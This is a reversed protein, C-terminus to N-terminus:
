KRINYTLDNEGLKIEIRLPSKTDEVVSNPLTCGFAYTGTYMMDINEVNEPDLVVVNPCFTDANLRSVDRGESGVNIYDYNVQRIWGAFEYDDQYVVKVAADEMFNVGKKQLNTLDLLLWAFEANVGSDQWGADWWRFNYYWDKNLKDIFVHDSSADKRGSINDFNADKKFQAFFDAFMFVVPEVKAYGDITYMQGLQMDDLSMPISETEPGGIAQIGLDEAQAVAVSAMMVLAILIALIKKM